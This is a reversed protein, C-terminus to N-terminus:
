LAEPYLSQEKGYFAAWWQDGYSWHWWEMPYPAFGVDSLVKYMLRRIQNEVSEPSSKELSDIWAAEDFSDYDTGLALPVNNYAITLDVAGGTTHPPILLSDKPDSVYGSMLDPYLNRYYDLLESQFARTRHSDLVVFSYGTPLKKQAELLKDLVNERLYLNDRHPLGFDNYVNWVTIKDDVTVMPEETYGVNVSRPNVKEPYTPIPPQPAIIARDPSQLFMSNKDALFAFCGGWVSVCM